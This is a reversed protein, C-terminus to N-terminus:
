LWMKADVLDKLLANHILGNSAVLNRTQLTFPKGWVDTVKGGAEQIIIAGAALDWVNLDAEFYGQVRGNAVWSLMTAASGLLRMTRVKPSLIHMGRLCADLSKINPPSGSCLVSEKLDRTECCKIRNGNMWAGYGKWATFMESNHPDYILGFLLEGKEAYAIIIGNLPMGHAFNTTGDLPDVIWLNESLLLNNIADKASDMGPDVDEEGLFSHFPFHLMVTSKIINQSATDVSTLIDRSGIKSKIDNQLNIKGLGEILLKGAQLAALRAIGDIKAYSPPLRLLYDDYLDLHNPQDTASIKSESPLVRSVYYHSSGKYSVFSAGPPFFVVIILILIEFFM